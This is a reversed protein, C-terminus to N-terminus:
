PAEPQGVPARLLLISGCRIKEAGPKLAEGYQSALEGAVPSFAGVPLVLIVEGVQPALRRIEIELDRLAFSIRSM